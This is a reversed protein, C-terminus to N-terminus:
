PEARAPKRRLAATMQALISVAIEAPSVAGIDMGVPANIREIAQQSIGAATLREVRSAHTKRSGLAGIYFPERALAVKLAPDDLKPDHTLTVIATRKDIDLAELAEDPWETSLTVKPFRAETAFAGRPDVVIVEYGAMAAMASFVQAIHVAGIIILRRPPNFIQIFYRQGNLDATMSKDATLADEVFRALAPGMAIDGSAVGDVVVTQAGSELDTILATAAKDARAKMLAKLTAAKM